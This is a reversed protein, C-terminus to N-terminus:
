SYEVVWVMVQIGKGNKPLPHLNNWGELEGNLCLIFVPLVSVTECNVLTTM